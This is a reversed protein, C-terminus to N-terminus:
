VTITRYLWSTQEQLQSYEKKAITNPVSDLLSRLSLNSQLVYTNPSLRLTKRVRRAYCLRNVTQLKRM